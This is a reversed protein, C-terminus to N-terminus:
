VRADRSPQRPLSRGGVELASSSDVELEAWSGPKAGIWGWKAGTVTWPDAQPRENKWEWGENAVVVKEFQLQLQCTSTSRAHNGHVM